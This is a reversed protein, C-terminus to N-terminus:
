QTAPRASGPNRRPTLPLAPFARGAPATPISNRLAGIFKERLDKLQAPSYRDPNLREAKAILLPKLSQREHPDAKQWVQLAKEIPLSKFSNQLPTRAARQLITKTDQGTIKGAGVARALEQITMKGDRLGNEYQRRLYAREVTDQDPVSTGASEAAFKRALAEAPTPVKTKIGALSAVQQGVTRRGETMQMGQNVPAINQGAYRALQKAITKADANWDVIHRGTFFDRNVALQLLAKTHVAPTAVSELVETPSKDGNALQVLNWIFTSAGARRFQATKDGTLLKALKDLQPYVVFTFLGLMALRDVSKLREAQPMNEAVLGKAMEAYSRLAGYHYAGFM